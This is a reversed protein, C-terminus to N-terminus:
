RTNKRIKRLLVVNSAVLAIIIILIIILVATVAMPLGATAYDMSEQQVSASGVALDIAEWSDYYSEDGAFSATIKYADEAPPTWKFRFDGNSDTTVTGIEIVTGNSSVASLTVPVGKIDEAAPKPYGGNLYAMWTDMSEKAVVPTGKQAPSQDTVRGNIWTYDGKAIKAQPVSVEVATPGKGFAKITNTYYDGAMLVGDAICGVHSMCMPYTWLVDGTEGDFAFLKNGELMPQKPNHDESTGYIKGDAAMFGTHWPWGGYVEYEPPVPNIGISQLYDNLNFTWEINGTEANFAYFIGNYQGQFVKNYAICPCDGFYFGKETAVNAKWVQDGTALDLAYYNGDPGGFYVNGYGCAISGPLAMYDPRQWAFKGTALDIAYGEAIGYYVGDKAQAIQKIRGDLTLVPNLAYPWNGASEMGTTFVNTGVYLRDGFVVTYYGGFGKCLERPITYLVEGTWADLCHVTEDDGVILAGGRWTGGPSVDYTAIIKKPETNNGPLVTRWKVQGTNIDLAVITGGANPDGYLDKADSNELRKGEETFVLGFASIIDTNRHIIAKTEAGGVVGGIDYQWTWLIHSTNPATSYPNYNGGSQNYQQNYTWPGPAEQKWGPIPRTMPLTSEGESAAALPVITIILLLILAVTTVITKNASHTKTKRNMRDTNNRSMKQKEGKKHQM